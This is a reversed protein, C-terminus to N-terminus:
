PYFSFYTLKPFHQREFGPASPTFGALTLDDPASTFSKLLTLRRLGRLGHLHRLEVLPVRKCTLLFLSELTVALHPVVSAFSLTTLSEMRRLLLERIRPLASLLTCVHGDTMTPHSLSLTRIRTCQAVASILLGVDVEFTCSLRINELQVLQRIFSVDRLALSRPRFETLTLVRALFPGAAASVDTSSLKLRKIRLTTPEATVLDLENVSLRGGTLDLHTLHGLSRIVDIHGRSLEGHSNRWLITLSTLTSELQLLPEIVSMPM